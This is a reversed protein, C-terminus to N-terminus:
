SARFLVQPGAGTGIRGVAVLASVQESPQPRAFYYGQGEDCGAARLEERQQVTEVGEATVSLGLTKALSVVSRVIATDQPDQGLSDVFSRDVKLTDVPFRKLYALSSYGTGFDDIAMRVGLGRLAQLTQITGIGAEMAVSETIELKLLEPPLGTDRLAEAVDEVLRPHQFQRGSLNVSMVIVSRSPHASADRWAQAQRCAEYLAWRGIPVILGTEEALPIFHAPPVLGRQPHEWRLLAEV